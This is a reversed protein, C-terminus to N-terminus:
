RGKIRRGSQRELLGPPLGLQRRLLCELRRMEGGDTEHDWGGLHLLGHLLLIRVEVELRHRRARAQRAATDLSIALDGLYNDRAGAFSLVDTPADHHRFKRNLAQIGFDDMLRLGIEGELGAARQAQRLFRRLPPLPLHPRRVLPEIM